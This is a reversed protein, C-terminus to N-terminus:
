MITGRSRPLNMVPFFVYEQNHIFERMYFNFADAMNEKSEKFGSCISSHLFNFNLKM